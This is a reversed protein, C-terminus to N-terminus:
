HSHSPLTRFRLITKEAFTQGPRLITNPFAPQNPSDPFHQTELVLGTRYGYVSGKGAPKGDMFNGSYFQLGPQTTHVELVRGSHPETLVAALRLTEKDRAENLVWNHDYGHGVKLQEDDMDIRSGIAAATRFDFPTGAVARLEGTPILTADVPTFRESNIKLIHDLITNGPNGSLNFYAHNALNLPTDATTTARYEISLSNDDGLRYTTHATVQGPFGEEGDASVYTLTLVSRTPTGEIKWVRKDFGRAGGHLTNPGDNVTLLYTMGNLRFSGKAIRNAYRGVTAGYYPVGAVYPALTDFGLVINQLHGHRDPTKLSVISAGYTMIRAEIGHENRLTYIEVSAEGLRGFVEAAQASAASSAALSSATILLSVL